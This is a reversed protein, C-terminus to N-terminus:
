DGLDECLGPQLHERGKVFGQLDEGCKGLLGAWGLAESRDM